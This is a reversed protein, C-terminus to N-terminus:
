GFDAPASDLDAFPSSSAPHALAPSSPLAPPMPPADAPAAQM